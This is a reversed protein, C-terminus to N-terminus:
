NKKKSRELQSFYVWRLDFEMDYWYNVAITLKSQTVRHLWMSPLYLIEGKNVRCELLTKGAISNRFEESVPDTKIWPINESEESLIVFKGDSSQSFRASPVSVEELLPYM